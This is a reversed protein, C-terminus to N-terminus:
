DLNLCLPSISIESVSLHCSWEAWLWILICEDVEKPFRGSRGSTGCAGLCAFEVSLSILARLNWLSQEVCCLVLCGIVGSLWILCFWCERRFTDDVGLDCMFTSTVHAIKRNCYMFGWHINIYFALSIFWYLM